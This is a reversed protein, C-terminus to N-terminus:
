AKNGVTKSLTAYYRNNVLVRPLTESNLEITWGGGHRPRMIIDPIIAQAAASGIALGPKPNLAKLEGIMEALDAQDVGCVRLLGPIDRSALLPLNDLLAQMAPDLRNRERLQIALCESLNRAFIGAPDFRQLRALIAEVQEQPCGLTAA